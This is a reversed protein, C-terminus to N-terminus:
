IITQRNLKNQTIIYFFLKKPSIQYHFKYYLKRCFSFVAKELLMPPGAKELLLKEALFQQELFDAKLNVLYNKVQKEAFVAVGFM